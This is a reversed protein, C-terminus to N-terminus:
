TGSAPLTDTSPPVAMPLHKGGVLPTSLRSLAVSSLHSVAPSAPPRPQSNQQQPAAPQRNTKVIGVTGLGVNSMNAKSAEMSPKAQPPKWVRSNEELDMEKAQLSWGDHKAATRLYQLSRVMGAFQQRKNESATELFSEVFPHHDSKIVSQYMGPIIKEGLPRSGYADRFSTQLRDCDPIGASPIGDRLAGGGHMGENRFRSKNAARARRHIRFDAQNTTGPESCISSDAGSTMTLQSLSTYQSTAATTGTASTCISQGELWTELSNEGAGGKHRERKRQEFVQIPKAPLNPASASSGLGPQARPSRPPGNLPDEEAARQAALMSSEMAKAKAEAQAREQAQVQARSMKPGGDAANSFAKYLNDVSQLFRKQEHRPRSGHWASLKQLDENLLGSLFAERRPAEQRMRRRPASAQSANDLQSSEAIPPLTPTSLSRRRLTESM